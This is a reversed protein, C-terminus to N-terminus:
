TFQSRAVLEDAPASNECSPNKKGDGFVRAFFPVFRSLFDLKSAKFQNPVVFFM